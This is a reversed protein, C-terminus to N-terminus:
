PVSNSCAAPKLARRMVGKLPRIYAVGVVIRFGLGEFGKPSNCWIHVDSSRNISFSRPGRSM